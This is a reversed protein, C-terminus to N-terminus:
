NYKQKNAHTCQIIINRLLTLLMFMFSNFYKDFDLKPDTRSFKRLISYNDLPLSYISFGIKCNKGNPKQASNSNVTLFSLKRCVLLFSLPCFTDNIMPLSLLPGAWIYSEIFHGAKTWDPIKKDADPQTWGEFVCIVEM